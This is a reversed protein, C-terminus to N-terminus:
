LKVREIFKFEAPSAKTCQFIAQYNNTSTGSPYREYVRFTVAYFQDLGENTIPKADPYAHKLYLIIAQNARNFMFKIKDEENSLAKLDADLYPTGERVSYQFSFNGQYASAGFYYEDNKYSSVYKNLEPDNWVHHVIVSYMNSMNGPLGNEDKTRDNSIQVIYITPDFLWKKNQTFLYQETKSSEWDTGNFNFVRYQSFTTKDYYKYRVMRKDNKVAYPNKSKLFANLYFTTNMAASFNKYQGPQNVGTGMATYDDDTLSYKQNAAISATDTGDVYDFTVKVSSKPDSYLYKQNLLLPIASQSSLASSFYKNNAISTANIFESETTLRLNLRTIEAEIVASDAKNKATKLKAKEANISDNVPKKIANAITVYDAATLTYEYHTLNVPGINEDYGPFNKENFDECATFITALAMTAIIYIKKM